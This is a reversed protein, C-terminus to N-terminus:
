LIGVIYPSLILNKCKKHGNNQISSISELNYYFYRIPLEDTDGLLIYYENTNRKNCEIDEKTINFVIISNINYHTLIKKLSLAVNYNWKKSFIKIIM